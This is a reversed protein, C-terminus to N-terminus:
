RQLAGLARRFLACQTLVATFDAQLRNESCSFVIFPSIYHAVAVSQSRSCTKNETHKSDATIKLYLYLPKKRSQKAKSNSRGM